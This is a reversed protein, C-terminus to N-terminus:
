GLSWFETYCSGCVVFLCCSHLPLFTNRKEREKEGSENNHNTRVGWAPAWEGIKMRKRFTFRHQQRQRHIKNPNQSSRSFKNLVQVKAGTVHTAYSTLLFIILLRNRQYNHNRLRTTCSELNPDHELWRFSMNWIINWLKFYVRQPLFDLLGPRLLWSTGQHQILSIGSWPVRRM